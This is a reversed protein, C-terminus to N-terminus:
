SDVVHMQNVALLFTQYQVLVSSFVPMVLESPAPCDFLFHHEDEVQQSSRCVLCLRGERDLHLNSKEPVVDLIVHHRIEFSFLLM